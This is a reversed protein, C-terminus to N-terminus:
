FDGNQILLRNVAGGLGGRARMYAAGLDRVIPAYKGAFSGISKALALANAPTIYSAVSAPALPFSTGSINNLLPVGGLYLVMEVSIVPMSSAPPNLCQIAIGEWGANTMPGTSSNSAASVVGTAGNWVVSSDIQDVVSTSSTVNVGTDTARRLQYALESTPQFSFVKSKGMLDFTTLRSVEDFDLLNFNNLPQGSYATEFTQTTTNSMATTSTLIDNPINDGLLPVPAVALEIQTNSTALVSRIRIGGGVVYYAVADAAVGTSTTGSDNDMLLVINTAPFNQVFGRPNSSTLQILYAILVPNPMFLAVGGNSPINLTFECKKSFPVCNRHASLLAGEAEPSFPNILMAKYALDAAAMKPTKPMGTQRKPKLKKAIASKREILQNLLNLSQTSLKKGGNTQKQKNKNM